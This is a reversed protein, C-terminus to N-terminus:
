FDEGDREELYEKVKAKHVEKIGLRIRQIKAKLRKWIRVFEGKACSNELESKLKDREKRLKTEIKRNDLLKKLMRKKGTKFITEGLGRQGLSRQQLLQKRSFSKVERTLLKLRLLTSLLKSRQEAECIKVLIDKLGRELESEAIMASNPKAM